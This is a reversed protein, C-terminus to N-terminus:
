HVDCIVIETESAISGSAEQDDLMDTHIRDCNIVHKDISGSDMSQINRPTTSYLIRRDVGARGVLPRGASQLMKYYNMNGLTSFDQTDCQIHNFSEVSMRIHYFTCFTLDM